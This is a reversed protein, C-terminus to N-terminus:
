VQFTFLNRPLEPDPGDGRRAVGVGYREPAGDFGLETLGAARFWQRISDRRDPESGGRTWIVRGGAALMAPTAEITRHIDPESVNGFIGCLLLLDVPLADRFTEPDGADGVVVQVASSLGGAHAAMVAAEALRPDNEVLVTAPRRDPSQAALVPLVDRGDGACLSLVRGVSGEALIDGIWRRVVALRRTLSSQPDDYGAHWGVWDTV